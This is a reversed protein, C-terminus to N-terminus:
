PGPAHTDREAFYQNLLSTILDGYEPDAVICRLADVHLISESRPPGDPHDWIDM